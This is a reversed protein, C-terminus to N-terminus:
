TYFSIERILYIGNCIGKLEDFLATIQSQIEHQFDAPILKNIIETHRTELERILEEYKKNGAGALTGIEILKDTAGSIASAVFITKDKGSAEKLINIVKTITSASAVSSGGFKLVQM